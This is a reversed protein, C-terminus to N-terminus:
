SLKKINNIIMYLEEPKEFAGEDYECQEWIHFQDPRLYERSKLINTNQFYGYIKPDSRSFIVFGKVKVKQANCFHPFFNDVSIWIDQEKVLNEIEDMSLNEYFKVHDYVQEGSRGIQVVEHGAIFLMDIFKQWYPYVKPHQKENRMPRSHTSVLIKM